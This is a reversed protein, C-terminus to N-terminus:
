LNACTVKFKYMENKRRLKKEYFSIKVKLFLSIWISELHLDYCSLLLSYCSVHM